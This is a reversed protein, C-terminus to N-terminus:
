PVIVVGIYRNGGPPGDWWAPFQGGFLTAADDFGLYYRGPATPVTLSATGHGSVGAVGPIGDYTCTQYNANNALGVEIQDICGPCGPDNFIVYDHDLTFSGGGPLM